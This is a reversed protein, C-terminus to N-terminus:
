YVYNITNYSIANRTTLLTTLLDGCIKSYIKIICNNCFCFRIDFMKKM